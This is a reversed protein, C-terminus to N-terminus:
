LSDVPMFNVAEALNFGLNFGAHLGKALTIIFKCKFFRGLFYIKSVSYDFNQWISFVRPFFDGFM